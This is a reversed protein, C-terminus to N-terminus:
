TPLASGVRNAQAKLRGDDEEGEGEPEGGNDDDEEEAGGAKRRGRWRGRGKRKRFMMRDDLLARGDFRDIVIPDEREGRWYIMHEEEQVAMAAVADNLIDARLGYVTFSIGETDNGVPQHDGEVLGGVGQLAKFYKKPLFQQQGPRDSPAVTSSTTSPGYYSAGTDGASPRQSLRPGGKSREGPLSPPAGMFSM